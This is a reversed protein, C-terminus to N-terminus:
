ISFLLLRTLIKIKLSCGKLLIKCAMAERKAAKTIFKRKLESLAQFKKENKKWIPCCQLVAVPGNKLCLDKRILM